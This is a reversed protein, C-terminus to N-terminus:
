CTLAAVVATGIFIGFMLLVFAVVLAAELDTRAHSWYRQLYSRVSVVGIGLILAAGMVRILTENM